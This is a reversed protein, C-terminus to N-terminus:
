EKAKDSPNERHVVSVSSFSSSNEIWQHFPFCDHFFSSSDLVASILGEEEERSEDTDNDISGEFKWWYLAM